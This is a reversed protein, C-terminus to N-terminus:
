HVINVLFKQFLSFNDSSSGTRWCAARGRGVILKQKSRTTTRPPLSPRSLRSSPSKTSTTPSRPSTQVKQFPQEGRQCSTNSRPDLWCITFLSLFPSTGHWAMGYSFICHRCSFFSFHDFCYFFSWPVEQQLRM